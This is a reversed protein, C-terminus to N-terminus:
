KKQRTHRKPKRQSGSPLLRPFTSLQKRLHDLELHTYRDHCNSTHGALKKRVEKSVGENAMWSIYSHRLSHFTLEKFNRGKGPKEKAHTAGSVGAKEMLSLFRHSLGHNGGIKGLCLTPFVPADAETPKPLANLYDQLDPLLINELAQPTTGRKRKQPKVRLTARELDVNSWRLRAADGLRLGTCLGVLILGRWETDAAELLRGMEEQTFPRRTRADADLLEVAEAPNTLLLGQRRAQNFPIRLTKVELNASSTAKGQKVQLDRFTEIDHAVVSSLPQDAKTGLHELFEDVTHRYRKGTGTAKTTEKSTAWAGLFDRVSDGQMPSHGAADLIQNLVGRAVAESFDGSVARQTATIFAEAVMEKNRLSSARVLKAEREWRECLALAKDRRTLKTSRHHQRGDAGRFVGVFYPSKGRSHLYVSAM